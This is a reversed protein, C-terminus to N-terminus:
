HNEVDSILFVPLEDTEKQGLYELTADYLVYETEEGYQDVEQLWEWESVPSEDEQLVRIPNGDVVIVYHNRETNELPLYVVVSARVRQEFDNEKWGEFGGVEELSVIESNQSQEESDESSLLLIVVLFAVILILWFWWRKFISKKGNPKKKKSKEAVEVVERGCNPCVKWKEDIENGCNKCFM